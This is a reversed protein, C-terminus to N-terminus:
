LEGVVVVYVPAGAGGFLRIQTMLYTSENRQESYATIQYLRAPAETKPPEPEGTGGVYHFVNKSKGLICDPLLPAFSGLGYEAVCVGHAIKALMRALQVPDLTIELKACRWFEGDSVLLVSYNPTAGLSPDAGRLIGPEPFVLGISSLPFDSPLVDAEKITGDDQRLGVRITSPREEPRRTSLGYKSRMDGFLGRLCVFELASTIDRCTKCSARPLILLGDLAAPVIHEKSFPGDKTGCYICQRVPRYVKLTSRVIM